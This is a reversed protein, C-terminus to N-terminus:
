DGGSERWIEVDSETEGSIWSGQLWVTGTVHDGKRPPSAAGLAPPFVFVPLRCGSAAEDPMCEIELRWGQFRPSPRATAVAVVRGIIQHHDHNLSYLTRMRDMEVTIHFDPDDAEDDRGEARLELKADEVLPGETIRVPEADFKELTLALGSLAVRALGAKRWHDTELGFYPAFFKLGHGAAANACVLGEYPGYVSSVSEVRVIWEMTRAFAPFASLLSLSKERENIGFLVLFSLYGRPRSMIAVKSFDDGTRQADPWPTSFFKPEAAEKALQHLYEVLPEGELGMAQWHDGHGLPEAPPQIEESM